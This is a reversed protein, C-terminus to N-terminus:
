FLEAHLSSIAKDVLHCMLSVHGLDTNDFHQELCPCQNTNALNKVFVEHLQQSSLKPFLPLGRANKDAEQNSYSVISLKEQIAIIDEELYILLNFIERFSIDMSAKNSRLAEELISNGDISLNDWIPLIEIILDILLEYLNVLTKGELVPEIHVATQNVNGSNGLKEQIAVIDKKKYLLVGYFQNLIECSINNANSMM